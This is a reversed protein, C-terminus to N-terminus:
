KGILTMILDYVNRRDETFQAVRSQKVLASACSASAKAAAIEADTYYSAAARDVTRVAHKLDARAAALEAEARALRAAALDIEHSREILAPGVEPLAAVYLTAARAANIKRISPATLKPM